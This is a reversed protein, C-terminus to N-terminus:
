RFLLRLGAVLFVLCITFSFPLVAHQGELWAHYSVLGAVTALAAAVAGNGSGSAKGSTPDVKVAIKGQHLKHIVTRAETISTVAGILAQKLTNGAFAAWNQREDALLGELYPRIVTM